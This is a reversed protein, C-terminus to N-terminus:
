EVIINSGGQALFADLADPQAGDPSKEAASEAPARGVKVTVQAAAGTLRQALEAMPRTISTKDLMERLFDNAVWLTLERGDWRGETMSPDNVFSYDSVALVGKLRSCFAPWAPWGPWDGGAAPPSKPQGSRPAPLEERSPEPM